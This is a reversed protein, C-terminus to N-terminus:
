VKISTKKSIGNPRGAKKAGSKPTGKEKSSNSKVVHTKGETKESKTKSNQKVKSGVAGAKL